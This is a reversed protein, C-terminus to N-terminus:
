CPCVQVIQQSERAIGSSGSHDSRSKRQVNERQSSMRALMKEKRTTNLVDILANEKQEADRRAQLEKKWHSAPDSKVETNQLCRSKKRGDPHVCWSTGPLGCDHKKDMIETVTPEMM